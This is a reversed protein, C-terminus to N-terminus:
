WKRLKKKPRDEPRAVLLRGDVRVKEGSPLTFRFVCHDKAFNREVANGKGKEIEITITQRTEDTVVGKAGIQTKNSSSVIEAKLGILEHRAINKATIM